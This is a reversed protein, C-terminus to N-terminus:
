KSSYLRKGQYEVVVQNKSKRPLMNMYCMKAVGDANDYISFNMAPFTLKDVYLPVSFNYEDSKIHLRRAVGDTTCYQSCAGTGTYVKGTDCLVGCMWNDPHLSSFVSDSNTTTIDIYQCDNAITYSDYGAACEGNQLPVFVDSGIPAVYYGDMAGDMCVNELTTEFFDSSAGFDGFGGSFPNLDAIEASSNIFASFCAGGSVGNGGCVEDATSVTDTTPVGFDGVGSTFPAFEPIESASTIFANLCAGGTVSPGNCMTDNDTGYEACVNGIRYQGYGCIAVGFSYFEDAAAVATILSFSLFCISTKKM